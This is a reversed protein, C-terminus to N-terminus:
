WDGLNDSFDALGVPISLLGGVPDSVLRLKWGSPKFNKKISSPNCIFTSKIEKIIQLFGSCAKAWTPQNEYEFQKGMLITNQCM